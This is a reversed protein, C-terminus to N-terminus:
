TDWYKLVKPYIKVVYSSRVGETHVMAHTYPWTESDCTEAYPWIESHYFKILCGNYVYWQMHM